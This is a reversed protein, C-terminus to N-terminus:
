GGRKERYTQTTELELKMSSKMVWLKLYTHLFTIQCITLNLAFGIFIILLLFMRNHEGTGGFFNIIWLSIIFLFITGIWYYYMSFQKWYPELYELAEEQTFEMKSINKRDTIFPYPNPIRRSIFVMGFVMGSLISFIDIWDWKHLYALYLFGIIPLLFYAFASLIAKHLQTRFWLLIEKNYEKM